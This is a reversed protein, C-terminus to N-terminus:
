HTVILYALAGFISVLGCSVATMIIMDRQSFSGVPPSGQTPRPRDIPVPSPVRFDTEAVPPRWRTVPPQKPTPRLPGPARRTPARPTDPPPAVGILTRLFSPRPM